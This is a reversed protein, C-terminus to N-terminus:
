KAVKNFYYLGNFLKQSKIYRGVTTKNIGLFTALEVNNKFSQILTYDKDYLSVVFKSMKDSILLKTSATQQKGWMSNLKGSKAMLLLSDPRHKKGYMPHNSKIVFRSRMKARAELTHIYGKMSTASLRVNYLMQSDFSQIYATELDALKYKTTPTYFVYVGFSFNILGYKRLARQLPINSKEGKIHELLRKRLDDSSGIYQKGNINNIFCYVGQRLHLEKSDVRLKSLNELTKLIFVPVPKQKLFGPGKIMAHDQSSLLCTTFLHANCIIYADKDIILVHVNDLLSAVCVTNACYLCFFFFILMVFIILGTNRACITGLPGLIFFNVKQQIAPSSYTYTM